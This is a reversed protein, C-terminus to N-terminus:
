DAGPHDLERAHRSRSTRPTRRSWMEPKSSSSTSGAATATTRTATARRSCRPRMPPSLEDAPSLDNPVGPPNNPEDFKVTLEPKHTAQDSAFKKWGYKDDENRARIGFGNNNAASNKWYNVISRVDFNIRGGPCASSYGKAVNLTDAPDAAFSPKNSWTVGSGWSDTVRYVDVRRPDCSYSHNEYLSLKASNIESGSPVSSLDFQLLSRATFTGDPGTYYGAKLQDSDSQPTNEINSQVFTDLSPTKTLSPDIVVPYVRAPDTLWAGDASVKLLQNSGSQEITIDIDESLAPERAQANSYSDYMYLKPITFATKGSSDVLKIVGDSTREATLGRTTLPFRFTMRGAPVQPRQKLVLLEKVQEGHVQFVLDVGPYIDVYTIENGEVTATSGQAGQLGFRVSTSADTVQILSPQDGSDAFEVDLAGATNEYGSGDPQPMLTDDIEKWTGDAAKFHIPATYINTTKTGDPEAYVKAYKTRESEVEDRTASQQVSSSTQAHARSATNAVVLISSTLCALLLHALLLRVRQAFM